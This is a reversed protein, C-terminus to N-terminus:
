HTKAIDHVRVIAANLRTHPQAIRCHKLTGHLRCQRRLWCPRHGVRLAARPNHEFEFTQNFGIHILKRMHQRGFMALDNGVALAINLAPQFNDLKATTNRMHQLTFIALASAGANIHIRHTLWDADASADRRKVKGAHDGQPHAAGRNRRTIREDDFWALTVGTNRHAKRFQKDFSAQGFANALDHMTVLFHDIGNKVMGADARDAKDTRGVNRMIDVIAANGVAFAHLGHAARLVMANDHWVSVKVM